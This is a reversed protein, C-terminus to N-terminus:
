RIQPLIEWFPSELRYDGFGTADVFLFSRSLRYYSWIEYPKTESEFPHREVEDPPGLIIYVMGRDTQWGDQFAAFNANTYDVRRYYEEMLENEETGPTPDMSKWFADFLSKKEDGKAKRIKKIEGGKAIYRLQDIAHDLDQVYAPMGAWHVSVDKLKTVRRKGNEVTLSLRYHGSRLGGKMLTVVVRSENPLFTKQFSDTRIAKGRMDLISWSIKVPQLPDFHYIYFQFFMSDQKEAYNGMVNAWTVSKGTSDAQIRDIFFIDSITLETGGFKPVEIKTKRRGTKKSDHDMVSIILEYTGPELRFAVDSTSFDKRSNTEAYTAVAIEKLLLRSDVQEGKKNFVAASLEYIAKYGASDRLFQLEDYSIKTYVTLVSHLSDDSASCVIDHFFDPVDEDRSFAMDAPRVQSASEGGFALILLGALMFVTRSKM